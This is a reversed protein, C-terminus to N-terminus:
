LYENIRTTRNHKQARTNREEKACVAVDLKIPAAAATDAFGLNTMSGASKNRRTRMACQRKEFQTAVLRQLLRHARRGIVYSKNTQKHTTKAAGIPFQIRYQVRHECTTLAIRLSTSAPLARRLVVTTSQREGNTITEKLTPM